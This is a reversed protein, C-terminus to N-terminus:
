RDGFLGTRLGIDHALDAVALREAARALVDAELKALLVRNSEDRGIRGRASISTEPNVHGALRGGFNAHALAYLDAPVGLRGGRISGRHWLPRQQKAIPRM